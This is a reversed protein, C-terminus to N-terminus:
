NDELVLRGDHLVPVVPRSDIETALEVDGRFGISGLYQGHEGQLVMKRVNEQNSRFLLLAMAGADNLKIDGKLASNLKDILMGGCITDEFSFGGDNGSCVIITDQKERAVREAVASVNVLSGSVIPGSGAAKSFPATGNSTTMIVFKGGVTEETFETPSNGLTFNEIKVGGREGALVAMDSGIKSWLEGAEGPGATPIVGKAGCMLASCISTSSRLVDIVVATKNELKARGLPVATLFLDIKM